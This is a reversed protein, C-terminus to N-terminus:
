YETDTEFSSVTKYPMKVNGSFASSYVICRGWANRARCDLRAYEPSEAGKYPNEMTFMKPVWDWMAAEAQVPTFIWVSVAMLILIGSRFM